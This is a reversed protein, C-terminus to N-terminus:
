LWKKRKFFVLMVIGVLIMVLLALPYGCKWALEPMFQFNMGYIGAIFTLPIFITAIITLVKMVENMKNSVTSLYLDLMGTVIDRLNEITDIIQITHDYVDRFYLKSNDQILESESRDINSLVERLPWVSKRLFILQRKLEYIRRVISTSSDALLKDELEETEDAIHELVHFYHDVIADILAYCLYDSKERRIRGKNKRIRERITNFVDGEVEQFTLLFNKGLVMSVQECNMERHKDDYVLMKMIIFYYDDYEEFKPRHDTNVIDELNLPHVNFMKGIKEIIDTDQLGTINIWSVQSSEFCMALDTLELITSETVNEPDYDILDISIKTTRSDGIYELTGPPSGPSKKRKQLLKMSNGKQIM